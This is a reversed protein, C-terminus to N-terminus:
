LLHLDRSFRKRREENRVGLLKKDMNNVVHAWCMGRSCGLFAIRMAAIIAVFGDAIMFLPDLERVTEEAYTDKLVTFLHLYATTHEHNVLPLSVLDFWHQADIIGSILVLFGQWTLRYTGDMHLPWQGLRGLLKM